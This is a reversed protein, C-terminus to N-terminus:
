LISTGESMTGGTSVVKTNSNYGYTNRLVEPPTNVIALCGKDEKKYTCYYTLGNPIIVSLLLGLAIKNKYQANNYTNM